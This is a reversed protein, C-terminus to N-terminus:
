RSLTRFSDFVKHRKSKMKGHISLVNVNTLLRCHCNNATIAKPHNRGWQTLGKVALNLWFCIEVLNGVGDLVRATFSNILSCHGRLPTVGSLSPPPTFRGGWGLKCRGVMVFGVRGSSSAQFFYGFIIFYQSIEKVDEKSM